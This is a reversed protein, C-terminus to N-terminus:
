AKKEFETYACRGCYLRAKHAALWTGAGCRPCARRNRILQTGKLTYLKSIRVSEHKRGKRIRKGKREVKKEKPKEAKEETPNM